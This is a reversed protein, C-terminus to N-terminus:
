TQYEGPSDFENTFMISGSTENFSMYDALGSITMKFPQDNELDIIEPFKYSDIWKKTTFKLETPLPTIFKPPYNM